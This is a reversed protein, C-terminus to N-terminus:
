SVAAGGGLVTKPMFFGCMTELRELGQAKMGVGGKATVVVKEIIMYGSEREMSYFGAM